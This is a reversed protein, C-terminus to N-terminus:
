HFFEQVKSSAMIPSDDLNEKEERKPSPTKKVSRFNISKLIRKAKIEAQEKSWLSLSPSTQVFPSTPPTRPDFTTQVFQTTPPRWPDDVYISIKQQMHQRELDALQAKLFKM